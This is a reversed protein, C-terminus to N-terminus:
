NSWFEKYKLLAKKLSSLSVNEFTREGSETMLFNTFIDESYKVNTWTWIWIPFYEKNQKKLELIKNKLANYDAIDNAAVKKRNYFIWLTEYWIPVWLM